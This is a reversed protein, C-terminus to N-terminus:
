NKDKFWHQLHLQHLHFEAFTFNKDVNKFNVKSCQKNELLNVYLTCFEATLRLTKITYFMFGGNM